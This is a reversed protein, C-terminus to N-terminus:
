FISVLIMVTMAVMYSRLLIFPRSEFWIRRRFDGSRERGAAEPDSGEFKHNETM